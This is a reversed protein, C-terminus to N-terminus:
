LEDLWIELQEIPVSGDLQHLIDHRDAARARRDIRQRLREHIGALEAQLQEIVAAHERVTQKLDEMESTQEYILLDKEELQEDQEEAIPLLRDQHWFRVWGDFVGLKINLEPIEFRGHPDPELLVSGQDSEHRVELTKDSLNFAVIYPIRLHEYVKRAAAYDKRPSLSDLVMLLPRSEHEWNWSLRRPDDSPVLAVANDPTVQKLKGADDYVIMLEGYVTFGPHRRRLVTLSDLTIRSQTNHSVGEGLEQPPRSARFEEAAHRYAELSQRSSM